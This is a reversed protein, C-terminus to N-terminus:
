LSVGVCDFPFTSIFIDRNPNQLKLIPLFFVRLRRLHSLFFNVFRTQEIKTGGFLNTEYYSKENLKGWEYSNENLKPGEGVSTSVCVHVNM